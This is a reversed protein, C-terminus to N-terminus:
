GSHLIATYSSSQVKNKQSIPYTDLCAKRKLTLINYTSHLAEYITAICLIFISTNKYTCPISKTAELNVPLFASSASQQALFEASFFEEDIFCKELKQRTKVFKLKIRELLRFKRQVHKGFTQANIIRVSYIFNQEFISITVSLNLKSTIKIQLSQIKKIWKSTLLTIAREINMFILFLRGLKWWIYTVMKLDFNFWKDENKMEERELLVKAALYAQKMRAQECNERM